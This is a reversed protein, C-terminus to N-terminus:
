PAFEKNYMKTGTYFLAAQAALSLCTKQQVFLDKASVSISDKCWKLLPAFWIVIGAPCPAKRLRSSWPDSNM